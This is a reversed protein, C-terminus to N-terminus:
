AQRLPDAIEDDRIDAEGIRPYQEAEDDGVEKQREDHRGSGSADDDQRGDRDPQDLHEAHRGVRVHRASNEQDDGIRGRDEVLHDDRAGRRDGRAAGDDLDAADLHRPRTPKECEQRRRDDGDEEGPQVRDPHVGRFHLAEFGLAVLDLACKRLSDRQVGILMLAATRSSAPTTIQIVSKMWWVSGASTPRPTASTANRGCTPTSVGSSSLRM